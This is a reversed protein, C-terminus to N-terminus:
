NANADGCYGEGFFSKIAAQAHESTITPGMQNMVDQLISHIIKLDSWKMEVARVQDVGGPFHEELKKYAAEM